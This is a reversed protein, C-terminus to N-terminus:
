RFLRFVKEYNISDVLLKVLWRFVEEFVSSEFGFFSENELWWLGLRLLGDNWECERLDVVFEAM